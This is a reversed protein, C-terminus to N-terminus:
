KNNFSYLFKIKESFKAVYSGPQFSGGGFVVVVAFETLLEPLVLNFKFLRTAKGNCDDPADDFVELAFVVASPRGNGNEVALYWGGGVASTNGGFGCCFTKAGGGIDDSGGVLPLMVAVLSTVDVAGCSSETSKVAARSNQKANNIRRNSEIFISATLSLSIRLRKSVSFSIHISM